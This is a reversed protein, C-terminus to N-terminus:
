KSLINKINMFIDVVTGFVLDEEVWELHSLASKLDKLEDESYKDTMRNVVKIFEENNSLNHIWFTELPTKDVENIGM